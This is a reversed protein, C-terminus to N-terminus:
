RTVPLDFTEQITQISSKSFQHPASFFWGKQHRSVEHRLSIPFDEPNFTVLDGTGQVPLIGPRFRDDQVAFLAV